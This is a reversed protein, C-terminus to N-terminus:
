FFLLFTRQLITQPEKEWRFIIQVFLLAKLEQPRISHTVEARRSKSVGFKLWSLTNQGSTSCLLTWMLDKKNFILIDNTMIVTDLLVALTNQCIQHAAKYMSRMNINTKQVKAGPFQNHVAAASKNLKRQLGEHATKAFYPMTLGCLNMRAKTTFLVFYVLRVFTDYCVLCSSM